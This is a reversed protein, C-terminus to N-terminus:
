GKDSQGGKGCVSCAREKGAETAATINGTLINVSRKIAPCERSIHWVKGSGTWFLVEAGNEDTLPTYKDTVEAEKESVAALISELGEPTLVEGTYFGPGEASYSSCATGSLLIGLALLAALLESRRM